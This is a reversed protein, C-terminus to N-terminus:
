RPGRKEVPSILRNMIVLDPEEARVAGLAEFGNYATLVEYGAEELNFRIKEVLDPHENAVLVAGRSM